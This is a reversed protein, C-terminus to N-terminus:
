NSLTIPGSKPGVGDPVPIDTSGYNTNLYLNPGSNLELQRSVIVTFASKDSVPKSADIILRGAPLYITGLLTPANNSTIRYERMPQSGYPPAPAAGKPGPPPAVPASVTRDEFFLLGVMDKDKPATLSISTDPDFRLGGANGTFYFGVNQGSLSATDKVVLPGDDFVYVGPMMTVQASGSIELGKTYTCPWLTQSSSIKRVSSLCSPTRPRPISALPDTVAPCDTLPTPSLSGKNEVGGASCILAATAQANREASIGKTDKSNSYVGCGNATLQSDKDLNLAKGMSVDLTLLCLKTTGSIRATAGVRLDMTPLSMLKGLVTPVVERITVQVSARKDLIASAVTTVSDPPTPALSQVTSKVISDVTTDTSNSLRLQQAGALAAGDAAKQLKSHRAALSGYEVTAAVATAMVPLVLGMVVLIGGRSDQAFRNLCSVLAKM